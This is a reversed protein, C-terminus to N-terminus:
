DDIIVIDIDNDAASKIKRKKPAPPAGNLDVESIDEESSSSNYYEDKVIPNLFEFSNNEHIIVKEFKHSKPQEMVKTMVDDIRLDSFPLYSQCCPCIWMKSVYAYELFSVLDFCSQHKCNAGRAPTILHSLTLPDHLPIAENGLEILDDDVQILKRNDVAKKRPRDKILQALDGISKRKALRIILVADLYTKTNMNLINSGSVLIDSGLVLPSSSIAKKPFRSSKKELRPNMKPLLKSCEKFNISISKMEFNKFNLAHQLNANFLDFTIYCYEHKRLVQYIRESIEFRLTVNFNQNSSLEPSSKLQVVSLFEITEFFPDLMNLVDVNERVNNLLKQNVASSVVPINLLNRNLREQDQYVNLYNPYVTNIHPITPTLTSSSSADSGYYYNNSMNNHVLNRNNWHDPTIYPHSAWQPEQASNTPLARQRMVDYFQYGTATHAPLFRYPQYYFYNPTYTNSPSSTSVPPILATRLHESSYNNYSNMNSPNSENSSDTSGHSSSTSSSTTPLSM